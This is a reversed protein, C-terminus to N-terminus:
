FIISFFRNDIIKIPIIVENNKNYNSYNIELYFKSIDYKKTDNYRIIDKFDISLKELNKTKKNITINIKASDLVTFENDNLFDVDYYSELFKSVREKPLELVYYVKGNKKSESLVALHQNVFAQIYYVSHLDKAKVSSIYNGDKNERYTTINNGQTQMYYTEKLTEGNLNTNSKNIYSSNINDIM